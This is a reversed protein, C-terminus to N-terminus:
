TEADSLCEAGIRFITGSAGADNIEQLIRQYEENSDIHVLYGGADVADQFAQTWSCDSIVLRYTHEGGAGGTEAAPAQIMCAASFMFVLTWLLCRKM